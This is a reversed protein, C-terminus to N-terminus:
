MLQENLQFEQVFINQASTFKFKFSFSHANTHPSSQQSKVTQSKQQSILERCFGGLFDLNSYITLQNQVNRFGAGDLALIVFCPLVCKERCPVSKAKCKSSQKWMWMQSLTHLSSMQYKFIICFLAARTQWLPDTCPAM